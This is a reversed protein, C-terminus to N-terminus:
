ADENETTVKRLDKLFKDATMTKNLCADFVKILDMPPDGPQFSLKYLVKIVWSAANLIWDPIIRLGGIGVSILNFDNRIHHNILAWIDKDVRLKEQKIREYIKDEGPFPNAM